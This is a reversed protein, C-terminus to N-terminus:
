MVLVAIQGRLDEENRSSGPQHMLKLHHIALVAHLYGHTSLYCAIHPIVPPIVKNEHGVLQKTLPSTSLTVEGINHVTSSGIRKLPRALDLM